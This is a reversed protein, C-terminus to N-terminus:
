RRPHPKSKESRMNGIPRFRPAAANATYGGKTMSTCHNQFPTPHLTFSHIRKTCDHCSRNDNKSATHTIFDM